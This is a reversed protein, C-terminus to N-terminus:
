WTIGLEHCLGEYCAEKVPLGEGKFAKGQYELELPVPKQELHAIMEKLFQIM